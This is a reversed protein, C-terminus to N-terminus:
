APASAFLKLDAVLGDDREIGYDFSGKLNKEKVLLANPDSTAFVRLHRDVGKLEALKEGLASPKVRESADILEVLGEESVGAKQLKAQYAAIAAAKQQAAASQETKQAAQQRRWDDYQAQTRQLLTAIPVERTNVWLAARTWTKAMWARRAADSVERLRETRVQEGWHVVEQTDGRLEPLQLAPGTARAVTPTTVGYRQKALAFQRRYEDEWEDSDEEPVAGFKEQLARATAEIAAEKLQTLDM